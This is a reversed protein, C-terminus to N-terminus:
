RAPHIINVIAELGDVVRPGPRSVLNADVIGVRGQRIAPLSKWEPYAHLIEELGKAIDNTVIIVEPQRRLIEERSLLPYVTVSHHAINEANALTLMEDLFSGNGVAVIPQLSLLLLVSRKPQAAARKVLENKRKILGALLSDSQRTSSTLYGVDGIAKFVDNLTHPYSVFVAVGASSLKEYDSKMNGSGTMLVLDPRLSLIREVDPNMIGGIKPKQKAQMPYDCYDTVGAISSDLGLAFLTETISPALSIIRHPTGPLTVTHGVDDIRTVPGQLKGHQERSCALLCLLAVAISLPARM